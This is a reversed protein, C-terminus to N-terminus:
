TPDDFSWLIGTHPNFLWVSLAVVLTSCLVAFALILMLSKKIPM